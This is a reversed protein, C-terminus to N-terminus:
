RDKLILFVELNQVLADFDLTELENGDDMSDRYDEMAIVPCGIVSAVKEALSRACLFMFDLKVVIVDKLRFKLTDNGLKVLAALDM